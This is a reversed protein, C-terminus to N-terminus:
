VNVYLAECRKKLGEAVADFGKQIKKRYLAMVLPTLIGWFKDYTIYETTEADVTRLIQARETKVPFKKPIGWAVSDGEKIWLLQEKQKLLKGNGNMNVHLIVKSGVEFNTEIKPTFTNWIAYNDLDMLIAWVLQKPAQIIIKSTIQQMFSLYPIKM